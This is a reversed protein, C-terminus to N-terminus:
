GHLHNRETLARGDDGPPAWNGRPRRFAGPPPISGDNNGDRSLREDVNDDGTDVIGGTTSLDPTDYLWPREDAAAQVAAVLSEQDQSFAPHKLNVDTVLRKRPYNFLNEFYFMLDGPDLKAYTDVIRERISTEIMTELPSSADIPELNQELNPYIYHRVLNKMSMFLDRIEMLECTPYLRMHSTRVDNVFPEPQGSRPRPLEGHFYFAYLWWRYLARRLKHKEAASLQRCDEPTTFWHLQPFLEEWRRAVLCYKLLRGLDRDVLTVSRPSPLSSIRVPKGGVLLKSLARHEPPGSQNHQRGGQSLTVGAMDGPFRRFVVRRPQFTDGYKVIDHDSATFVQLLEPFPSFERQLVPLLIAAKHRKLLGHFLTNVQALSFISQVDLQHYIDFIIELPLGELGDLKGLDDNALDSQMHLAGFLSSYKSSM